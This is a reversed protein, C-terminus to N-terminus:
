TRERGGQGDRWCAALTPHAVHAWWATPPPLHALREVYAALRPPDDVVRARFAAIEDAFAELIALRDADARAGPAAAVLALHEAVVAADRRVHEARFPPRVITVNAAHQRYDMRPVPDLALRAGALWARTALFWDAAVAGAPLPLCRRLVASRYASNSLGFVNTRPM